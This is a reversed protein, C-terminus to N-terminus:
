SASPLATAARSVGAGGTAGIGAGGGTSSRRPAWTTTTCPGSSAEYTASLVVSRWGGGVVVPLGRLDPHELLSVAAYFADMDVHLVTIDTTPGAPPAPVLLNVM